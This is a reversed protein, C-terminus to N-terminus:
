CVLGVQREQLWELGFIGPEDRFCGILVLSSVPLPPRKLPERTLV